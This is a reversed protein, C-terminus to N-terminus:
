GVGIMALRLYLYVLPAAFIMADFRDLLGGHGPLVGGSDKVEVSRKLRSEYLDGLQSFGGCIVAVVLVHLWPLFALVTLKLVVAVLLAGFLGGLTGEWTKKPSIAPALPRRGLNKGVVYAATDTAWILLFLTLTVYFAQQDLLGLGTGLRLDTLFVLLGTPYVLGTLTAALSPLPPRDDKVFLGAALLVPLIAVAVVLVGPVLPRVGVLVGFALGVTTYPRLGAHTMLGYVEYQAVLAIGLVLLGFPWGGWYALGLVLPIAVLATVIRQLANTM